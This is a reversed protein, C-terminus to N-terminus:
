SKWNSRIVGSIKCSLQKMDSMELLLKIRLPENLTM